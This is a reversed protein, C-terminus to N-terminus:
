VVKFEIKLIIETVEKQFIYINNVMNLLKSLKDGDEEDIFISPIKIGGGYGDDMMQVIEQRNKKDTDM